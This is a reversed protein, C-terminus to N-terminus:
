PTSAQESSPGVSNGGVLVMVNQASAYAAATEFRALGLPTGFTFTVAVPDFFETSNLPTTGNVGGALLVRNDAFVASSHLLRQPVALDHGASAHVPFTNLGVDYVEWTKNPTANGGALLVCPSNAGSPCTTLFTASHGGTRAVQMAGTGSIIGSAPPTGSSTDVTFLDSTTSAAGGALLVTGTSAVNTATLLRRGVSLPNSVGSSAISTPAGSDWMDWTTLGTTNACNDGGAILVRAPSATVLAAAANCRSVNLTGGTTACSPTAGDTSCLEFERFSAGTSNGGAVIVQGSTGGIATATHFARGFALTPGATLVSNAPNYFFTNTQTTGTGDSKTNGGTIFIQGARSGGNIVTATAGFVLPGTNVTIGGENGTSTGDGATITNGTSVTNLIVNLFTFVGNDGGVFSHTMPLNTSANGTSLTVTGTYSTRTNNFADQATVTASGPTGALVPNPFGTVAFHNMATPSVTIGGETGQPAGAVEKATISQAPGALTLTVGNTFTHSGNDGPVFTYDAPLTAPFGVSTSTTTFHITKVYTTTTNTFQDQATVTVTGPNGATASTPFGTVALQNPAAPSVTIGGETGQPTGAVEKATISQAPGALTLSV